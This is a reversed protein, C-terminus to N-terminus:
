EFFNRESCKNCEGIENKTIKKPLTDKFFTHELIEQLTFSNLSNFNQGYLDPAHIFEKLDDYQEDEYTMSKLSYCCPWVHGTESIQIEGRKMWPCVTKFNPQDGIDLSVTKYNFKQLEKVTQFDIGKIKTATYSKYKVMDIEKVCSRNVQFGAFGLKKATNSIEEIQHSNYDFVITRWIANASSEIFSTANEIVKHWNVGRRYIHNTDELGDISFILDHAKFKQLTKGLAYWWEKNRASGNTHIVVYLHPNTEALYNIMELASPHMQFDGVSGNFVIEKVTSLDSKCLNHWAKVPFHKLKLRPNIKGGDINRDCSGCSANCYSTFEIQLTFIDSHKLHFM